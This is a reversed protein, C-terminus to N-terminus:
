LSAVHRVLHNEAKKKMRFRFTGFLKAISQIRDGSQSFLFGAAKM